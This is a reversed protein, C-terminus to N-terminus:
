HEISLLANENLLEALYRTAAMEFLLLEGQGDLFYHDIVLSTVELVREGVDKGLVLIGQEGPVGDRCRISPVVPFASGKVPPLALQVESYSTSGRSTTDRILVVKLGFVWKKRAQISEMGGIRGSMDQLLQANGKRSILRVLPVLVSVIGPGVLLQVSNPTDGSM